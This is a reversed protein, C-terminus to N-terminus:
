IFKFEVTPLDGKIVEGATGDLLVQYKTGKYAYTTFWVPTHLYFVEEATFEFSSETIIDVDQKALFLQLEKIEQEAYQLAEERGVESNLIKATKDLKAPDFPIRGELPIKYSRTPFAVGKRAIVLWTYRNSVQDEKSVSPTVREVVGKYTTTAQASIFWFPLYTLTAEDIETKKELDRPAMFSKKMWGRILENVDNKRINNLAVSHELTFPQGTQIVCTYGCYKCSVIIEGPEFELPAGCNSCNIERVIKTLLRGLFMLDPYIHKLM